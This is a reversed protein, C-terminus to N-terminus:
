KYLATVKDWDVNNIWYRTMDSINLESRILEKISTWILKKMAMNNHTIKEGEYYVVFFRVLERQNDYGFFNMGFEKHRIFGIGLEEKVGRKLAEEYSEGSLIHKGLFCIKGADHDAKFPRQVLLVQKTRKDFLTFHATHHLLKPNSHCDNISAKGIVNDSEDVVDFYEM